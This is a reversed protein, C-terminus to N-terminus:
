ESEKGDLLIILVLGTPRPAGFCSGAMSGSGSESKLRNRTEPGKWMDILIFAEWGM